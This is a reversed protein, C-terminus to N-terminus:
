SDLVALLEGLMMATAGWVVKGFLNFHPVQKLILNQALQLDIFQVIDPQQLLAFPVELVSRVERVQPVFAPTEATFGVFPHAHFNSVPIYLDTLAGLIEINGPDVGVEERAERLATHALTGDEPEFKGGPFSIQGGHRDNPNSSDREIFVLHWDNNKPFFLALVAAQRADPPVTLQVRRVAPALRFQAAEGPLPQQLRNALRQIFDPQMGQLLLPIATTTKNNV